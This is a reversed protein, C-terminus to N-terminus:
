LDTPSPMWSMAVARRATAAARWFPTPVKISSVSHPNRIPLALVDSIPNMASRAAGYSGCWVFWFPQATDGPATDGPAPRYQPRGARV